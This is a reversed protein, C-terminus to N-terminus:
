DNGLKRTREIRGASVVIDADAISVKRIDKRSIRSKVLIM